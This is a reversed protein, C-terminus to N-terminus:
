AETAGCDRYRKEERSSRSSRSSCWYRCCRRDTTRTLLRGGDCSGGCYATCANKDRGRRSVKDTTLLAGYLNCLPRVFIRSITCLSGVAKLCAPQIIAADGEAERWSCSYARIIHLRDFALGKLCTVRSIEPVVLM